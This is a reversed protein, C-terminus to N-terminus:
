GGVKNLKDKLENDLDTFGKEAMDMESIMNRLQANMESFSRYLNQALSSFAAGSWGEWNASLNTNATEMKQIATLLNLYSSLLCNRATDFQSANVIIKSDM